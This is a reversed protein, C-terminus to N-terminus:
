DFAAGEPRLKRIAGSYGLQLESSAPRSKKPEVVNKWIFDGKSMTKQAQVNNPPKAAQKAAKFMTQAARVNNKPAPSHKLGYFM